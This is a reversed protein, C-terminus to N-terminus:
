PGFQSSHFFAAPGLKHGRRRWEVRYRGKRADPFNHKWDIFSNGTFRGLRYRHCVRLRAPDTVCLNYGGRWTNSHIQFEIRGNAKKVVGFCYRDENCFLTLAVPEQAEVRSATGVIAVFVALLAVVAALRGPGVGM